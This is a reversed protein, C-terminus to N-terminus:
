PFTNKTRVEPQYSRIDQGKFFVKGQAPDYLRAMLSATTTKGGGTPGVLAYTKGPELSFSIEHLVEKGEPYGFHVKDFELLPASDNKKEEALIKLNTDLSLIESVRDWGALAVQFSNWLAALHRLPEYFRNIYALFSILLGLTFNGTLILHIGYVLVILQGILAALGYIPTFLNNALGAGIATQYNEKNAQDFQERFYDSRNFAVIVKFNDLSQQIEASMGGVSKMNIANKKKVWPSVLWTFIIIALAPLLCAAGLRPNIILLAIGAGLMIFINGIFQMLTQSFFQNLKDTDNNIRSILDGAKNQNFFAVPLEQLKTFIANRLNFLVRQGVGGMVRTQIYSAGLAILYMVLLWASYLLVGSYQGTLIYKDVAQGVIVPALLNMASNLAIAIAAIIIKVREGPM